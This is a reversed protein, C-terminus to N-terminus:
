HGGSFTFKPPKKPYKDGEKKKSVQQDSSASEILVCFAIRTHIGQTLSTTAETTTSRLKEQSLFFPHNHFLQSRCMLVRWCNM